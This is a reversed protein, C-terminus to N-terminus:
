AKEAPARLEPRVHEPLFGMGIVRAPIRQLIPLASLVRMFLPVKPPGPNGLIPGLIRDQVFVQLKQTKRTPPERREQVKRLVDLDAPGDKLVPALINAAAVADQIALNIGIGGVPSMAHAADGICLLGPRAWDTLRDVTVSLLKVDDFSQLADFRPAIIPAITKLRTRFAEIGEARIRENGGKRIVFGCQWYDGREILALFGGPGVAGMTQRPDEATRPIRFWLVDIPAGIDQLPLGSRERMTSHRGDCGIVLDARIELPGEPTQARVGRVAGNEEILETAEAQMRLDFNPMTRGHDALMDLFDWQPMLAIFPCRVDLHRFDALRYTKGAISAAITPAPNFPRTAFDELLGLEGLVEMTSPHITDGRFDRLFDAHKELVVVDVGGRALLLGLMMGAPGGGVVCCRKKLVADPGETM